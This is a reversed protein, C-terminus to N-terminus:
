LSTTAELHCAGPILPFDTVTNITFDVGATQVVNPTVRYFPPTLPASDFDDPTPVHNFYYEVRDFEAWLPSQIDVTITANGDTTKILTPLGLSLGGTEGTSAAATTM